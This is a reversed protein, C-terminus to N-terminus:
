RCSYLTFTHYGVFFTGTQHVNNKLAWCMGTGIFCSFLEEGGDHEGGNGTSELAELAPLGEDEEDDTEDETERGEEESEEEQEDWEQGEEEPWEVGINKLFARIAPDRPRNPRNVLRNKYLECAKATGM